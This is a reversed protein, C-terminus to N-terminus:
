CLGCYSTSVKTCGELVQLPGVLSSPLSMKCPCTPLPCPTMAKFQFVTSKSYIYSPFEESHPHHPVPVPQGSFSHSGGGQFHELGPQLPSQAAQDLQLHGQGHCLPQFWIIKLTGELGFWEVIRHNQSLPFVCNAPAKACDCVKGNVLRTIKIRYHRTTTRQFV